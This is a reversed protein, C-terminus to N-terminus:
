SYIIPNKIKLMKNQIKISLILCKIMHLPIKIYTYICMNHFLHLLSIIMSIVVAINKISLVSLIQKVSFYNNNSIKPVM